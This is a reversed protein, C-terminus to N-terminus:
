PTKATARIEHGLETLVARTEDQAAALVEARLETRVRNSIREPLNMVANRVHAAIGCWEREVAGFEVLTGERKDLELKALRAKFAEGAQRSEGVSPLGGGARGGGLIAVGTEADFKGDPGAEIRGSERAKRVSERSVGALKALQSGNV